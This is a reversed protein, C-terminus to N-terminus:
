YLPHLTQSGARRLGGQKYEVDFRNPLATRCQCLM